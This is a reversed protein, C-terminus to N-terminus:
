RECVFGADWGAPRADADTSAWPCVPREGTAGSVDPRARLRPYDQVADANIYSAVEARM